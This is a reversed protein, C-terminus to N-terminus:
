ELGSAKGFGDEISMLEVVIGTSKEFNDSEISFCV